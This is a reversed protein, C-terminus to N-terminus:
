RVDQVGGNALHWSKSRAGIRTPTETRITDKLSNTDTKMKVPEGNVYVILGEPKGSGDYTVFVHNWDGAKLVDKESSIKLANDQWHSILHVLVRKGNAISLDWG